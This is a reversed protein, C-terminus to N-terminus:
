RVTERYEYRRFNVSGTWRGADRPRIEFSQVFVGRLDEAGEVLEIWEMLERTPLATFTARVTVSQLAPDGGFVADKYNAVQVIIRKSQDAGTVENALSQIRDAISPNHPFAGALDVEQDRLDEAHQVYSRVSDIETTRQELLASASGFQFAQVLVLVLAAGALMLCVLVIVRPRNARDAAGAMAVLQAETQRDRTM